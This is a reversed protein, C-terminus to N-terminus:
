ITRRSLSRPPAMQSSRNAGSVRTKYSVVGPPLLGIENRKYKEEIRAVRFIEKLIPRKRANKPKKADAFFSSLSDLAAAELRAVSIHGLRRISPPQTQPDIILRLIHKLVHVRETKGPTLHIRPRFLYWFSVSREEM